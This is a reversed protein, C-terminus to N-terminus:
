RRPQVQLPDEITRNLVAVYGAGCTQLNDAFGTRAPYVQAQLDEQRYEWTGNM